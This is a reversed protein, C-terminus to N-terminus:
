SSSHILGEVQFDNAYMLFRVMSCREDIEGDTTVIVRPRVRVSPYRGGFGTRSRGAHRGGVGTGICVLIKKM